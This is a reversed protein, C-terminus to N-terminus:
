GYWKVPVMKDMGNQELAQPAVLLCPGLILFYIKLFAYSSALIQLRTSPPLSRSWKLGPSLSNSQSGKLGPNAM